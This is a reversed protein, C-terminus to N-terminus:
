DLSHVEANSLAFMFRRKEPSAELDATYREAMNRLTDSQRTTWHIRGAKEFTKLADLLEGEHMKGFAAKQGADKLLLLFEGSFSLSALALSRSAALYFVRRLFSHPSQRGRGEKM